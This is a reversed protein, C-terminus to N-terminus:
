TGLRRRELTSLTSLHAIILNVDVVLKAFKLRFLRSRM